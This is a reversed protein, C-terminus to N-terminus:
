SRKRPKSTTFTTGDKTVKPVSQMASRWEKKYKRNFNNLEGPRYHKLCHRFIGVGLTFTMEFVQDLKDLTRIHDYVVEPGGANFHFQSDMSLGHTIQSSESYIVKYRAEDGLRAAMDRISSPGLPLYWEVDKGSNKVMGEFLDYIRTLEKRALQADARDIELQLDQQSLPTKMPDGPAGEMHKLNADFERTGERCCRLWYRKQRLNWVFYATARDSYNKEFIWRLYLDIEFISRIHPYCSLAAGERTLISIADLSTVGHKLFSLISVIDPIRGESSDLCRPLLNTGYNVLQELLELQAPFIKEIELKFNARDLIALHPKDPM